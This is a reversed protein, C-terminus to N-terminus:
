STPVSSIAAPKDDLVVSKELEACKAMDAFILREIEADTQAQKVQEALKDSADGYDKLAIDKGKLAITYKIWHEILKDFRLSLTKEESSAEKMSYVSAIVTDVAACRIAQEYGAQGPKQPDEAAHSANSLVFLVMTAFCAFASRM